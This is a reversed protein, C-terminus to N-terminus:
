FGLVFEESWIYVYYYLIKQFQAKSIKLQNLDCSWSVILINLVKIFLKHVYRLEEFLKRGRICKPEFHKGLTAQKRLLIGINWLTPISSPPNGSRGANWYKIKIIHLAQSKFKTMIDKSGEFNCSKLSLPRWNWKMFWSFFLCELKLSKGNELWSLYWSWPQTWRTM